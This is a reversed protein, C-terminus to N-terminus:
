RNAYKYTKLIDNLPESNSDIFNFRKQRRTYFGEEISSLNIFIPM